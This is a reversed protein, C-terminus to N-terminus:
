GETFCKEGTQSKYEQKDLGAPPLFHRMLLLEDGVTVEHCLQYVSFLVLVAFLLLLSNM